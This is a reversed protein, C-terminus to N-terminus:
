LDFGTWFDKDNKDPREWRVSPHQKTQLKKIKKSFKALKKAIKKRKRLLKKAKM